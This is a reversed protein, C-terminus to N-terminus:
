EKIQTIALWVWLFGLFIGANFLNPIIIAFWSIIIFLHFVKGEQDCAYFYNKIASLLIYSFLALLSALGLIGAGLWTELFINSSNFTAGREDQGLVSGISGWGIGM